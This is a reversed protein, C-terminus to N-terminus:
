CLGHEDGKAALATNGGPGLRNRLRELMIMPEPVPSGVQWGKAKDFASDSRSM